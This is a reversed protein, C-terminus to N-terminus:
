LGLSKLIPEKVGSSKGNGNAHYISCVCGTEKNRYGKDTLEFEDINVDHLTQTIYQDYDLVMKVPQKLFNDQWLQQDNQHFMVGNDQKYDEQINPADMAELAALVAETEGVIVGSNLYKYQSKGDYLKDYDEKVFHPFCNKEANFVIPSNFELYKEFAKDPHEAYFLDFCDVFQVYKTKILGEKIARHQENPKAGLGNFRTLIVPEVGYKALSKEFAWLCYYDEVPRRDCVTVITYDKSM